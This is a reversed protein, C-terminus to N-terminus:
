ANRYVKAYSNIVQNLRRIKKRLRKRRVKQTSHRPSSFVVYANMLWAYDDEPMPPPVYAPKETECYRWEEKM